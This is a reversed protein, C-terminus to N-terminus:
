PTDKQGGGRIPRRISHDTHQVGQVFALPLPDGLARRATLLRKNDARILKSPFSLEFEDYGTPWVLVDLSAEIM